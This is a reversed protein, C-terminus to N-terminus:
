TRRKGGGRSGRVHGGIGQEDRVGRQRGRGRFKLCGGRGGGHYGRGAAYISRKRYCGSSPNSYPYLRPVVTSLYNCAKVFTSPHSSRFKKVETKFDTNPTMIQDLTHEVM